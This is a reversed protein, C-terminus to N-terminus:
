RARVLGFEHGGRRFGPGPVPRPCGARDRALVADVERVPQTARKVGPTAVGHRHRAGGVADTELRYAGEGTRLEGRFGQFPRGQDASRGAPPPQVQAAGGGPGLVPPYFHEVRTVRRAEVRALTSYYERAVGLGPDLVRHDTM